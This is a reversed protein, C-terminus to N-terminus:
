AAVTRTVTGPEGERVSTPKWATAAADTDDGDGFVGIVRGGALQHLRDDLADVLKVRLIQGLFNDPSHPLGGRTAEEETGLGGEAVLPHLHSVPHPLARGQLDVRRGRREHPLDERTRQSPVAQLLYAAVEVPPTDRLVALAPLLVTEVVQEGVFGIRPSRDPAARRLSLLSWVGHPHLAGPLREDRLLQEAALELQEQRQRHEKIRDSADSMDIETMEILHWIRSLRQRVEVLGQEITELRERQERAVGDMEEDVMRVLDRMNGETLIHDRLQGVILGEFRKANLRPTGCSEKGRKILSQCVYYTYKGSKAEAATLAKGCAECKLLGSLLYPSSARRPHIHKPARPSCCGSRGSM